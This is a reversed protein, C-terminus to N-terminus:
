ESTEAATANIEAATEESDPTSMNVAELNGAARATCSWTGAACRTMSDGDDRYSGDPVPACGGAATPVLGSPCPGPQCLGCSKPCQQRVTSSVECIQKMNMEMPDLPPVIRTSICKHHGGTDPLDSCSADTCRCVPETWDKRCCAYGRDCAAHRWCRARAPTGVAQSPATRQRYTSSGALAVVSDIPANPHSRLGLHPALIRLHVDRRHDRRASASLNTRSILRPSAASICATRM